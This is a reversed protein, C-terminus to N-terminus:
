QPKEATVASLADPRLKEQMEGRLHINRGKPDFALFYKRSKKVGSVLVELYRRAKYVRPNVAHTERENELRTLESAAQMERQWRQAQAEALRVAAQGELQILAKEITRNWYSIAFEAARSDIYASGTAADFQATLGARLPDIAKELAEVSKRAEVDRAALTEQAARVENPSRGMGMEFESKKALYDERALRFSWDSELMADYKEALNGFSKQAEEDLKADVKDRASRTQNLRLENDQTQQIAHAMLKSKAKDGAAESLLKEEEVQAMRIATVKEQQATVVKRFAEAANSDPHVNTLGVYDILLGLKGTKPDNARELIRKRLPEVLKERPMGMLDDISLGAALASAEEWAISRLSLHPDSVNTAFDSLHHADIRYQVFVELRILNIPARQEAGSKQAGGDSQDPLPPLVIFDFHERGSHKADTWQEIAVKGDDKKKDDHAHEDVVPTDGSRYGIAFEHLRGTDFKRAVDMPWPAKIHYGPELPQSANKPEGWREIIAREHPEVIVISTLLWIAVSAVAVLPILTRQLLQYFWTQSVQFGFQYNIAEAVSHAIGGPESFLGLLRSDFAARPETGPSRPRYIDFVFNLLTEAGLLIMAIPIAWAVAHEWSYVRQYIQAGFAVALAMAFIACGLAYSGCARLMKSTSLRALGSSYRSVFFTLVTVVGVLILALDVHQIGAWDQGAKDMADRIRVLRLILLAGFGALFVGIVLGFIPVLWRQMWELRNQAVMFGIGGGGQEDFLAEGGGTAKKERKLEELDHAELEALEYQRYLLLAVFWIPIGAALLWALHELAGPPPIKGAELSRTSLFLIGCILAALVQVILGILAARRSRAYATETM